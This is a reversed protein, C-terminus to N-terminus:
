DNLVESYDDIISCRCNYTNAPDADPDGPYDITGYDTDFSEDYDVSEGDLDAHWARTREDITAVWQKKVHIGAKNLNEMHDQRGSNEAATCMTRANRVAAVNDMDSVNKLRKSIDPISEGKLIGQAMQSNIAKVNWAQDKVPDLKKYPLMIKKAKAMNKVARENVLDFSIGLKANAEVTLYNYNNAYVRPMSANALALAAINLLTLNHSTRDVVDRYETSHSTYKNLEQVYADKAKQVGEGKKQADQYAKFLAELKPQIKNMYTVFERFAKDEGAQFLQGIKRELYDIEDDTEQHARDMM